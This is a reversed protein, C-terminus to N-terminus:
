SYNLTLAVNSSPADSDTNAPGAGSGAKIAAIILGTKFKMPFGYSPNNGTRNTGDSSPLLIWYTPTTSGVTVDATLADYFLVFVDENANLNLGDASHIRAPVATVVVKTNTLAVNSYPLSEIMM